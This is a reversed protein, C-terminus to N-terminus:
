NGFFTSKTRIFAVNRVIMSLLVGCLYVVSKLTIVVLGGRVKKYVSYVFFSIKGTRTSHVHQRAIALKYKNVAENLARGTQRNLVSLPLDLPALSHRVFIHVNILLM